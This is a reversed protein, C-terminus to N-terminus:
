IQGAGSRTSDGIDWSGVLMIPTDDLRCRVHRFRSFCNERIKDECSWGKKLYKRLYGDRLTSRRGWFIKKIHDEGLHGVSLGM